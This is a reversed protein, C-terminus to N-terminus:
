TRFPGGHEMFPISNAFDEFSKELNERNGFYDMHDDDVNTIISCIPHLSLFTGDSEDAEVVMYEGKGVKAQGGLNPVMGGIIYTPDQKCHELITSVMATTTTKGHTGAICVGKKLRMIDALMEARRM